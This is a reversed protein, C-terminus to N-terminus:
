ESWRIQGSVTPANPTALDVPLTLENSRASEITGNLATMVYRYTGNQLGTVTYERATADLQILHTSFAATGVASYVRYATVAAPTSGDTNSTPPTWTLHAEARRTPTPAPTAPYYRSKAVWERNAIACANGDGSNPTIDAKCTNIRDADAVTSWPRWRADPSNWPDPTTPNPSSIVLTTATPVVWRRVSTNCATNVAGSASALTCSLVLNTTAFAPAGVLLGALAVLAGAAIHKM